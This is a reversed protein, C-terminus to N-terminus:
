PRIDFRVSEGCVVGDLYPEVRWSGYLSNSMIATGGVPFTASVEYAPGGEYKVPKAEQEPLPRPYGDVHREGKSQGSPAFPVTLTQYLHGRPTYVKLALVHSDVPPRVLQTGFRLDLIRTASFPGRQRARPPQQPSTVVIAACEPQAPTVGSLSPAEAAQALAVLAGILLM